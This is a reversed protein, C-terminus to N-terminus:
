DTEGLFKAASKNKRLDPRGTDDLALLKKNFMVYLSTAAMVFGSIVIIYRVDIVDALPGLLLMAIPMVMTIIINVISFVRGMMQPDTKEQILTTEATTFMPLFLGSFLMIGLYIWFDSMLGLATFTIGFFLFSFGMSFIRNKFGGWAAIIVGGIIAGLSWAIENATLRWIEPGFVREVLIPTLYSAPAVLFFGIAYFIMMFRLCDNRWVYLLGGKLEGWTSAMSEATKAIKALPLFGLVTVGIVATGVDFFLANVFGAALLVGGLAPSLLTLLSTITSFIANVRTLNEVPVIQPLIASVAPQQIGAGLSRLAMIVFMLTYSTHGQLWLIALLLTVLAIFLDSCIVLLKRNYRDAWVGALPSILIQPICNCLVSVTMMMGSSTEITIYWMVAYAVVLSGMMTITQSALFLVLRKQWNQM